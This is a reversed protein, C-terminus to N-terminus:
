LRPKGDILQVSFNPGSCEEVPAVRFKSEPYKVEALGPMHIEADLTLLRPMM